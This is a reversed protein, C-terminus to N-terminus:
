QAPRAFRTGPDQCWALMEPWEGLGADPNLHAMGPLFDADLGLPEGYAPGAGEQCYPDPESWVLRLPYATSSARIGEPDGGELAFEAIAPEDHVFTPGPPAVWALREPREAPELAPALHGWALCSLSHCAVVRNGRSLLGLQERIVEMWRSLSPTYPEPLQPHHVEIGQERLHGAVITQWHDPPRENQWGHLFLVAPPHSV